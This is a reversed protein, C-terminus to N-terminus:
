ETEFWQLSHIYLLFHLWWLLRKYISDCTTPVSYYWELICNSQWSCKYLEQHYLSAEKGNREIQLAMYVDRLFLISGGFDCVFPSWLWQRKNIEYRALIPLVSFWHSVLRHICSVEFHLNDGHWPPLSKRILWEERWPFYGNEWPLGGYWSHNLAGFKLWSHVIGELESGM